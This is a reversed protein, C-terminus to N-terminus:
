RSAFLTVNRDPYFNDADVLELKAESASGRANAIEHVQYERRALFQAVEQASGDSKLLRTPHVEVIIDPNHKGIIGDAGQIVRLEAGEVDIKLLDITNWTEAFKDLPVLEVEVDVQDHSTKKKAGLSHQAGATNPRKQYVVTGSEEGVAAKVIEVKDAADNLRVNRRLREVNEEDMEFSWVDGESLLAGICTFWGLNAGVDIIGGAGTAIEAFIYTVGPEHVENEYRPFFWRKSYSDRTSFRIKKGSINVEYTKRSGYKLDFETVRINRRLPDPIMFRYMSGVVELLEVKDLLSRVFVQIKRYM